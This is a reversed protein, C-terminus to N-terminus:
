LPMLHGFKLFKDKLLAPQDKGLVILTATFVIWVLLFYSIMQVQDQGCGIGESGDFGAMIATLIGSCGAAQVAVFVGAVTCLVNVFWIVQQVQLLIKLSQRLTPHDLAIVKIDMFTNLPHSENEVITFLSSRETHYIKFLITVVIQIMAITFLMIAKALLFKAVLVGPCALDLGIYGFYGAGVTFLCYLIGGAKKIWMAQVLGDQLTLIQTTDGRGLLLRQDVM